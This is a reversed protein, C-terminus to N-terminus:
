LATLQYILEAEKRILYQCLLVSCFSRFSSLLLINIIFLGLAMTLLLLCQEEWFDFGYQLSRNERM